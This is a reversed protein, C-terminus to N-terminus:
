EAGVRPMTRVGLRMWGIEGDPRRILSGVMSPGIALRDGSIVTIPYDTVEDALIDERVYGDLAKTEMSILLQDGEVRLTVADIPTEFRGAYESLGAASLNIPLTDPAFSVGGQVGVLDAGEEM